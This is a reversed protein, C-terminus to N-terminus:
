FTSLSISRDGETTGQTRRVFFIVARVGSEGMSYVHGSSTLFYSSGRGAAIEAIVERDIAGDSKVTGNTADLTGNMADPEDVLIEVPGLVDDGRVGVGLQGYHNWGCGYARGDEGLLLTHREGLVVDVIRTGRAFVNAADPMRVRHFRDRAETDNLCLQGHANGGTSWVHGAADLAVTYYRSAVVKVVRPLAGRTPAARGAATDRAESRDGEAAWQFGLATGNRTDRGLGRHEGAASGGATLVRGENTLLAAHLGGVSADVLFEGALLAPVDIPTPVTGDTSQIADVHLESLDGAGFLWTEQLQVKVDPLYWEDHNQRSSATDADDTEVRRSHHRSDTNRPHSPSAAIIEEAGGSNSSLLGFVLSSLVGNRPLLSM